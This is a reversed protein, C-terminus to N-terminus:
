SGFHRHPASLAQLAEIASDLVLLGRFTETAALAYTTDGCGFEIVAGLATPWRDGAALKIRTLLDAADVAPWPTAGHYDDAGVPLPREPGPLTLSVM